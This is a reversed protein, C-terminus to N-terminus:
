ALGSRKIGIDIVEATQTVAMTVLRAVLMQCLAVIVIHWHSLHHGPSANMAQALAGDGDDHMPHEYSIASGLKILLYLRYWLRYWM